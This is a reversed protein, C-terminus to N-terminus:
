CCCQLIAQETENPIVYKRCLVHGHSSQARAMARSSRRLASGIPPVLELEVNAYRLETSNIIFERADPDVEFSTQILHITTETGGRVMAKVRHYSLHKNPDDRGDHCSM